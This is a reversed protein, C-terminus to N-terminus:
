IMRTTRHICIHNIHDCIYDYWVYLKREIWSEIQKLDLCDSSEYQNMWMWRHLHVLSWRRTFRGYGHWPAMSGSPLHGALVKAQRRPRCRSLQSKSSRKITFWSTFGCSKPAVGNQQQLGFTWIILHACVYYQAKLWLTAQTLPASSVQDEPTINGKAYHRTVHCKLGDKRWKARM